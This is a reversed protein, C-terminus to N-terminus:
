WRSGDGRSPCRRSRGTCGRGRGRRLLRDDARRGALVDGRLRDRRRRRRGARAPGRRVGPRRGGGHPDRGGRRRREAAAPVGAGGGAGVGAAALAGVPIRDAGAGGGGGSRFAKAVGAGLCRPRWRQWRRWCLMKVVMSTPMPGAAAWGSVRVWVLELMVGVTGVLGGALVALRLRSRTGVAVAAAEVLLASPLYLPSGPCRTAWRGASRWRWSRECCWTPWWWRSRAGRDWRWGLWSWRWRPRRDRDAAALVVGPVPPRRFRVRGYVHVHGGAGDRRHPGSSGGSCRRGRGQCPRPACSFCPSRPWRAAVWCSCTPRAGCPSTWATPRTGCTTSRSPPWAAWAWPQRAAVVVVAGAGRSAFDPRHMRWRPSSCPSSLRHLHARGPGGPDHRPLAHVARHRARQRHALRRGLLVRDRAGAPVAARQARGGDVLRPVRHVPAPQRLHQRLLLRTFGPGNNRGMAFLLLSVVAYIGLPVMLWAWAGWGWGTALILDLDVSM